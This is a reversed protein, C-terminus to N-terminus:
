YNIWYKNPKMKDPHDSCKAKGYCLLSSIKIKRATESVEKNKIHTTTHINLTENIKIPWGIRWVLSIITKFPKKKINKDDIEKKNKTCSQKPPDM